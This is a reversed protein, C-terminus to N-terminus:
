LRTCAQAHGHKIRLAGAIEIFNVAPAGGRCSSAHETFLLRM